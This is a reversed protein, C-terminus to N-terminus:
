DRYNGREMATCNAFHKPPTNLISGVKYKVVVDNLKVPDINFTKTAYNTAGIEDIAVQAMQGVKEELSMKALLATIKAETAANTSNPQSFTNNFYLLALICAFLKTERFINRMIRQRQNNNEMM